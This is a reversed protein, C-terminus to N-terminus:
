ADSLGKTISVGLFTALAISLAGGMWIIMPRAAAEFEEFSQTGIVRSPGWLDAAVQTKGVTILLIICSVIGVLLLATMASVSKTSRYSTGLIGVGTLVVACFVKLMIGLASFNICLELFVEGTPQDGILRGTVALGTVYMIILSIGALVALATRTLAKKQADTV